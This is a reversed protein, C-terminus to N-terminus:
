VEDSAIYGHSKVIVHVFVSFVFFESSQHGSPFKSIWRLPQEVECLGGVCCKEGEGLFQAYRMDACNKLLYKVRVKKLM